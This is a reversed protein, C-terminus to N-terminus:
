KCECYFGPVGYGPTIKQCTKHTGLPNACAGSCADGVKGCTGTPVYQGGRLNLLEENKLIKESNIVLKGLTKM